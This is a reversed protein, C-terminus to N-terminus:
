YGDPALSFNELNPTSMVSIRLDGKGRDLIEYDIIERNYESFYLQKRFILNYMIERLEMAWEEEEESYAMSITEEIIAEWEEESLLSLNWTTIALDFFSRYEEETDLYERYPEIFDMLVESMKVQGPAAMVTNEVPISKRKLKEHLAETASQKRQKRLKSKRGM